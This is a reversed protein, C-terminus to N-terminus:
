KGQTGRDRGRERAAPMKALGPNASNSREVLEASTQQRTRFPLWTSPPLFIGSGERM